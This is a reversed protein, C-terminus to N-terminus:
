KSHFERVAKIFDDKRKSLEDSGTNGNYVVVYKSNYSLYAEVAVNDKISRDAFVYFKGDKKIESLVRKADDNINETDYEYIEVYVSNNNVNFNYRDGDKAGIVTYLMKSPQTKEPIYGLAVLYKELEELNNKYESDKITSADPASAIEVNELSPGKSGMCGSLTVALILSFVVLITKKM